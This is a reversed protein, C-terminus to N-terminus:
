KTGRTPRSYERRGNEIFQALVDAGSPKPRTRTRPAPPLNLPGCRRKGALILAIEDLDAPRWLAAEYANQKAARELFRRQGPRLRGTMSKLEACIMRGSVHQLVLDPLGAATDKRSDPHHHADWEFRDALLIVETQFEAESMRATLLARASPRPANM